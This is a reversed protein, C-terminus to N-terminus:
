VTKEEYSGSDKINYKNRKEKFLESIKEALQIFLADYKYEEGHEISQELHYEIRAFYFQYIKKIFLKKNKTNLNSEEVEDIFYKILYLVYKFQYEFTINGEKRLELDRAYMDIPSEFVLETIENHLEEKNFGVKYNERKIEEYDNRFRDITQNEIQQQNAKVQEQFSIYILFAGLINIFPATIGGITDGIAGSDTDFSILWELQTFLAPSIVVLLLIGIILFINSKKM